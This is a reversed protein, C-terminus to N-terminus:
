KIYMKKGNIVYIGKGLKQRENGLYQGKLNYISDEDGESSRHERIATADKAVPNIFLVNSVKAMGAASSDSLQLQILHGDTAAFVENTMSLGVVRYQNDGRKVFTLQHNTGGTALSAGLLEVGEPLTVDFQFATFVGERDIGMYIRNNQKTLHVDEEAINDIGSIMGHAPSTSNANLVVTVLMSVDFINIKGDDNMDATYKNFTEETPDGLINTVVAVADAINVDGDENADGKSLKRSFYGPADPGGDLRAYTYDIHKASYSTGMGGVLSTCDLFMSSGNEVSAKSWESGAYITKLRNCLRFMGGMETVNATNFSSLDLSTLSQCDSFMSTMDTVNATNFSSLDLSTLGSCFAFMVTMNTVNATNFSGLDLSTLGSCSRFMGGMETVNATNFSSLDLSTLSQCGYFMGSMSTVKATNFNSVDLSTLGYCCEFMGAMSTVNATNFSSLDLSKLDENPMSYDGLCFMYRMDTVNSTNLKNLGTIVRLKWCYDFWYATSTLTTCSAFSDDFIVTTIYGRFENWGRQNSNSFPGVSMGNRAAKKDDYYFTLVTNDSSLVAYPEPLFWDVVFEAVESDNYGEAVAIAKITCNHTVAISDTYLSSSRTPVSGDLTYYISSQPTSCEMGVKNNKSSIVPTACRADWFNPGIGIYYLEIGRPNISMDQAYSYRNYITVTDMTLTTVSSSGDKTSFGNTEIDFGRSENKSHTNYIITVSDKAAVDPITIYGYDGMMLLYPGRSSNEVFVVRGAMGITNTFRLGKSEPVIWESGNVTAALQEDELANQYAYRETTNDYVWRGSTDDELNAKTTESLGANFFWQGNEATVTSYVVLGSNRYGDKVALVKLICRNRLIIPETYLESATSPNTGDLTYYIQAGPTSTTISAINGNITIVPKAVQYALMSFSSVESDTWGDRVAIAKVVCNSELHVPQTYQQSMASPTSNDTTYYITAEPTQTQITLTTGDLSFSPEVCKNIDVVTPTTGYFRVDCFGIQKSKPINEFTTELTFSGTTTFTSPIDAEYLSTYGEDTGYYDQEKIVNARAPRLNTALTTSEGESNTIYLNLSGMNIGFRAMRLSVKQPVFTYGEAVNATWRVTVNGYDDSPSFKVFTFGSNDGAYPTETAESASGTVTVSSGSFIDAPIMTAPASSATDFKWVVSADSSTNFWNVAYSAVKSDEYGDAVAIAKVTCNKTFSIPGTYLTSGKTPVSGDTTYYITANDTKSSIILTNDVREFTPTSTYPVIPTTGTDEVIIYYIHCGNSPQVDVDVPEGGEEGPITWTYEQYTTPYATPDKDLKTDDVYLDIGREESPKHSEIGMKITTGPAVAPITFYVATTKGNLWLYSSGNYPGWKNSDTTTQYDFAIAVKKAALATWHLGELEPIIAGGAMLNGEEDCATAVTGNVNWVCADDPVVNTTGDGKEDNTWDEANKVQSVTTESWKTFDWTRGNKNEEFWDVVYTAVESDDYGDAVAIAKVTCNQTLTIPGTYLTSSTTPTSGNTTYFISANETTTSITLQNNSLSFTPTSANEKIGIGDVILRFTTDAQNYQIGQDDSVAINKVAVTQSTVGEAVKLGITCLEGETASNLAVTVTGGSCILMMAGDATKKVSCSHKAKHFTSSLTVDPVYEEEDEDYVQAIEVGEPLYLYMQWGAVTISKTMNVVLKGGGNVANVDSFTMSFGQASATVSILAILMM